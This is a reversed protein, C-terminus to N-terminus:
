WGETRGLWGLSGERYGQLGEKCGQLGACDEKCHRHHPPRHLALALVPPESVSGPRSDGKDCSM